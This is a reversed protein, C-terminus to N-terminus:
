RGRSSTMVAFETRLSSVSENQLFRLASLSPITWPEHQRNLRDQALLTPGFRVNAQPLSDKPATM